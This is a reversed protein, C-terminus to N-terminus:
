WRRAVDIALVIQWLHVAILLAEEKRPNWRQSGMENSYSDCLAIIWETAILAV